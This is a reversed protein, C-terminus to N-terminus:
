KCGRIKDVIVDVDEISRAVYVPVGDREMREIEVVDQGIGYIM